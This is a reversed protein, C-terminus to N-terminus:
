GTVGQDPGPVAELLPRLVAALDEALFPKQLFGTAAARSSAFQDAVAEETYGSMWVVPIHPWEARLRRYVELGGMRPMSLDLLVARVAAGNQEILQAAERGDKAALVTFGLEELMSAAVMRVGEDDEAVVVTGEGRWGAQGATEARRPAAGSAAAPFFVRFTTGEGPATRIRILGHHSEVIGLVAALGLGRGALKTSFFPDFIRQLTDSSMGCGTDSVELMVFPGEAPPEIGGVKAADILATRLTITGGEEGLADSANTILNMVVQRVQTPDASIAPLDRALKWVIAAQKSIATRLLTGMERVERSLDL